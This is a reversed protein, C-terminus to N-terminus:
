LRRVRARRVAEEIIHEAVASLKLNEAQSIARLRSFGEEATCGSRSRLIGIAQDITARSVLAAQLQAAQAQARELVQANRVAVGAPGAFLEGLRAADEDFADKSHSYLNLAGVVTQDPLLLPLSLVSHVGLRGIRPGFRPWRPDGGTNGTRITRREAAATICPGEDLLDYQIIDVETVFPHSAGLAQVRDSSRDLGLLMVGAGDVRPIAQTASSAVRELLDDLTLAGTVLAGIENLSHQLDQERSEAESTAPDAGPPDPPHNM